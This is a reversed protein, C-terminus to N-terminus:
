GQSRFYHVELLQNSKRNGPNEGEETIEIEVLPFGLEPEGPLISPKSKYEYAIGHTKTKVGKKNCGKRGYTLIPRDNLTQIESITGGACARARTPDSWLIRFVEGSKFYRADHRRFRPDVIEPVGSTGRIDAISKTDQTIKRFLRGHTGNQLAILEAPLSTVCRYRQRLILDVVRDHGNSVAWSLPTFGDLDMSNPNGWHELLLRTTAEYGRILLLTFGNCDPKDITANSGVLLKVIDLHGKMAAWSIAPTGTTDCLNPGHADILRQVPEELGFYSALHIGEMRRPFLQSYGAYPRTRSAVGNGCFLGQSMTEIKNPGALLQLISEFLISPSANRAHHGWNQEAYHYLPNSSLRTEHESDSMCPRDLGQFSMYKICVIAIHM